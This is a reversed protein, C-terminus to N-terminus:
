LPGLLEVTVEGSAAMVDGRVDITFTVMRMNVDGYDLPVELAVSEWGGDIARFTEDYTVMPFSGGGVDFMNDIRVRMCRDEADIPAGPVRVRPVVMTAGQGGTVVGVQTGDTWPVFVGSERMGLEATATPADSTPADVRCYSPESVPGCGVLAAAVLIVVLVKPAVLALRHVDSAYATTAEGDFGSLTGRM